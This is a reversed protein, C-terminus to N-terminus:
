FSLFMQHNPNTHTPSIRFDYQGVIRFGMRTYFDFAKQNELWVYLWFGKQRAAIAMEINHLLLAKGLGQGHFADLLYIRELKAVPAIAVPPCPTNFIIKSFGAPENGAYIIRYINEPDSLEKIVIDPDYKETVYAAIDTAPASHGHSQLFTEKGLQALLTADDIGATLIRYPQM